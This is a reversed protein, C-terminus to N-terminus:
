ARVGVLTMVVEVDPAAVRPVPSAVVKRTSGIAGQPIRSRIGAVAVSIIGLSKGFCELNTPWSARWEVAKLIKNGFSSHKWSETAYVGIVLVNTKQAM